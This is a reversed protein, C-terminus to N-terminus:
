ELVGAVLALYAIGELPKAPDRCALGGSGPRSLQFRDGEMVTRPAKCQSIPGAKEMM